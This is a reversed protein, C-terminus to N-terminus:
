QEMVYGWLWVNFNAAQLNAAETQLHKYMDAM